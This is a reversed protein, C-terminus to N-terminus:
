LSKEHSQTDNMYSHRGIAILINVENTHDFKNGASEFTFRRARWKRDSPAFYYALQRISISLCCFIAIRISWENIIHRWRPNLHQFHASITGFISRASEYPRDRKKRITLKVRTADSHLQGADNGFREDNVSRQPYSAPRPKACDYRERKNMGRDRRSLTSLAARPAARDYNERIRQALTACTNHLHQALTIYTDHLHWPSTAVSLLSLPPPPPRPLM